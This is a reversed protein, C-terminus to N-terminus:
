IKVRKGYSNIIVKAHQLLSVTITFFHPEVQEKHGNELRCLEALDFHASNDAFLAGKM